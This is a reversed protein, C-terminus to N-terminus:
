IRRIKKERIKKEFGEVLNITNGLKRLGEWTDEEVM